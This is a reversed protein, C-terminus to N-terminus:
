RRRPGRSPKAALPDEPWDHKPYRGRLDRRVERYAGRWFSALDRTVQVPRQAPSLLRLTLPVRGRDIAPTAALGFVEQLRVAVAPAGDGQYEIRLRAGGPLTLHTPARQELARRQEPSLRARLAEALPLRNLHERRTMGDLWPALWQELSAELAADTVEPWAAERAGATRPAARLFGIRAQLERAERDWPLAALGLERVGALMAARLAEPPAGPLPKDELTLADLTLTRRATVAQGRTDWGISDRERIRDAFQAMLEARTLPAALLIRADRGADDLDAAVILERRSLPQAEAFVAGRGNALLFRGGGTRLGIRDPYTFALLLGADEDGTPGAAAAGLQRELERASRRVRELAHSEAAAQGRPGALLALRTGVDADRAKPLGRLLDRESLLAALRAGLPVRGLARARLLMHALRPHVGLRAMARGHASIRGDAELAGLRGLLERASALQAAPPADLWALAAAGRVGWSALELALPALDAELIEAPTFPALSAHAGASWARYCVGPGVRGARGQRQEASARSIRRTELRSMGTVPDFRARRALGSDVVVRVGPLTLSTEAINTALVVKRTGPAGPALAADQQAAGLDGYLPLIRPAPDAAGAELLAAVRRIERAGPLFVLVDGHEERLARLTLRALAEEPGARPAGAAEDPLLPLGRGAYRTQVAFARGAAAVVPADGLLRAVAAGDLTASMVLLKLDTALQARADLSLALGLDAQLSREHFEDFILAAVGELAPDDQLLRTLVGETVVEIRTASSVRTDLRMRCGVTGGVREGLTQAMRQAIARAALRRPELMVLRKGAAWPEELLALPVVTSKGAGPPAALVAARHSALAARLAPLAADIPLGSSM